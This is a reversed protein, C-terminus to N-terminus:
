PTNAPIVPADPSRTWRGYDPLTSSLLSTDGPQYRQSPFFHAQFLRQAWLPHGGIGAHDLTAQWLANIEEASSGAFAPSELVHWGAVERFAAPYGLEITDKLAVMGTAQDRQSLEAHVVVDVVNGLSIPLAHSLHLSLEVEQMFLQEGASSTFRISRLSDFRKGDSSVFAKADLFTEAALSVTAPREGIAYTFREVREAVDALPATMDFPRESGPGDLSIVLAHQDVTYRGAVESVLRDGFCANHDIGRNIVTGDPGFSYWDRLSLCDGAAGDAFWHGLLAADIGIDPSPLDPVRQPQAPDDESAPPPLAQDGPRDVVDPDPKAEAAPGMGSGIMSPPDRPLDRDGAPVATQVPNMRSASGAGGPSATMDENAGSRHSDSCALAL